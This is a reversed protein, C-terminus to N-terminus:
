FYLTRKYDKIDEVSNEMRLMCKDAIAINIKEINDILLIPIKKYHVQVRKVLSLLEEPTSTSKGVQHSIKLFVYSGKHPIINELIMNALVLLLSSKGTKKTNHFLFCMNLSFKTDIFKRLNSTIFAFQKAEAFSTFEKTPLFPDDKMLYDPSEKVVEFSITNIPIYILFFEQQFQLPHM